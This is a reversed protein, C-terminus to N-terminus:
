LNLTLGPQMTLELGAQAVCPSRSEFCVFCFIFVEGWGWVSVVVLFNDYRHHGRFSSPPSQTKVSYRITYNTYLLM